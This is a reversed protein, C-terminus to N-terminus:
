GDDGAFAPLGTIVLGDNQIGRGRPAHCDTKIEGSSRPPAPRGREAGVVTLLVCGVVAVPETATRPERVWPPPWLTRVKRTVSIRKM